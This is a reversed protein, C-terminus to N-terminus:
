KKGTIKGYNTVIDDYTRTEGTDIGSLIGKKEPTRHGCAIILLCLVLFMAYTM